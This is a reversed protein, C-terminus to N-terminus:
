NIKSRSSPDKVYHFQRWECIKSIALKLQKKDYCSYDIAIGNELYIDEKEIYYM